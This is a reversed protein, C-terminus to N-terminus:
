YVYNISSITTGSTNTGTATVPMGYTNYTYSYTTSYNNTPNIMDTYTVGSINNLGIFSLNETGLTSTGSLLLLENDLQLPNHYADFTYAYTAQPVWTTGVYSFTQVQTAGSYSSNYSLLTRKVPVYTTSGSNLRYTIAETINAGSYVFVTSDQYGSGPMITYTYQNTSSNYNITNNIEGNSIGTIIGASNRTFSYNTTSSIGNRNSIVNLASVKNNEYTVNYMVSDSTGPFKVTVASLPRSTSTIPTTDNDKKCATLMACVGAIVISLRKM